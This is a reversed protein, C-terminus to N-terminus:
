ADDDGVDISVLRMERGSVVKVPIRGCASCALLERNAPATVGCSLCEVVLPVREIVLECDRAVTDRRMAEFAFSLADPEVSSLEGVEVTAVSVETAGNDAAVRAILDLLEQAISAEHM